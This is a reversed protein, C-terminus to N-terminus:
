RGVLMWIGLAAFLLGAALHVLHVPVVRLIVKGVIVALIISTMMGITSGLWIWYWDYQTSLALATLMTKDGLEALSFAVFVTAIATKSHAQIPEDVEDSAGRCVGRLTVAAFGIFLIGAAIRVWHEPLFRGVLDGALSSLLNLVIIALTAGILVSRARFRTSLTMALLQSKDGLEALFILGASIAIAELM